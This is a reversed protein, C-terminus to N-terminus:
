RFPTKTRMDRMRPVRNGVTSIKRPKGWIGIEMTMMMIGVIMKKPALTEVLIGRVTM